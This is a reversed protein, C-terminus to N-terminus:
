SLPGLTSLSVSQVGPVTEFQQLVQEGFSHLREGEFGTGSPNFELLLLRDPNFGPDLNRINTLSRVFLSADILLVLSLAVQAGVLSRKLRSSSSAQAGARQDKLAPCLDVRTARLAPF